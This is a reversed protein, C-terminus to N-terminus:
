LIEAVDVDEIVADAAAAAVPPTWLVGSASGNSVSLDVPVAPSEDRVAGGYTEGDACEGSLDPTGPDAGLGNLFFGTIQGTSDKGKKANKTSTLVALEANSIATTTSNVVVTKIRRHWKGKGNDQFWEEIETVSDCAVEYSRQETYQFALSGAAAQLQENNMGLALQVDGKGSYGSGTAPDFSVDASAAPAAALAGAAIAATILGHKRM